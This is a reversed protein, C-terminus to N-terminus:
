RAVQEASCQLAEDEEVTKCRGDRQHFTQNPLSMGFWSSGVHKGTQVNEQMQWALM